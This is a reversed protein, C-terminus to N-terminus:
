LDFRLTDVLHSKPEMVFEVRSCGTSAEQYCLEMKALNCLREKKRM